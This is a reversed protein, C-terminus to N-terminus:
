VRLTAHSHVRHVDFYMHLCANSAAGAACSALVLCARISRAARM